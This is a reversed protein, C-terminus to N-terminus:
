GREPLDHAKIAEAFAAKQGETAEAQNRAKWADYPMGYVLTKAADKDLAVGREAAAEHMWRSLCNRCFGAMNMLDINQVDTRQQLHDRLRRFAAAELAQMTADDIETM